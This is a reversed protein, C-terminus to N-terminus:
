AEYAVWCPAAPRAVGGIQAPLPAIGDFEPRLSFAAILREATRTMAALSFPQAPCTHEGHGFTTVLERAELQAEDVLRRRGWRDPEYVALDPLASSNTLPLLTAIQAGPAVAYTTIGDDIEIEDLVTRLMISRQGLRTSELACREALGAEGSRVRALVAPHLLLQAIMWGTAAFLNSMSGLHLLIVDRAVGVARDPGDVDAWREIIRAFEDGPSEVETRENMTEAILVEVVAMADREARKAGAQVAAMRDPHVFADSGDLEDLAAVFREFRASSAPTEGGWAALGMRHGLRRSFAFVEFRGAAGLEDLSVDIAADLHGLYGRVDDRGFLDHPFTRRGDFLEEPLKRLLMQWDAIGKSAAREPLAYFSRVGVPSFVFLTRHGGGDVVFTDGYRERAAALEAVPDALEVDWPLSADAIPPRPEIIPLDSM